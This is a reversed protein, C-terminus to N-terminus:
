KLVSYNRENIVFTSLGAKKAISVSYGPTQKFYLHVNSLHSDSVETHTKQGKEHFNNFLSETKSCLNVEITKSTACHNASMPFSYSPSM